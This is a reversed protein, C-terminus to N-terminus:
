TKVRLGSSLAPAVPRGCFSPKGDPSRNWCPREFIIQIKRRSSKFRMNGESMANKLALCQASVSLLRFKARKQESHGIEIKEWDAVSNGQAWEAFLCSTPM